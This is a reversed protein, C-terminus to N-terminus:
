PPSPTRSIASSPSGGLSPADADADDFAAGEIAGLDMDTGGGFDEDTGADTGDGADADGQRMQLFGRGFFDREVYQAANLEDHLAGAAGVFLTSALLYTLGTVVVVMLLIGLILGILSALTGTVDFSSAILGNACSLRVAGYLGLHTSSVTVFSANTKSEDESIGDSRRLYANHQFPETFNAGYKKTPWMTFVSFRCSDGSIGEAYATTLLDRGGGSRTAQVAKKEDELERIAAPHMELGISYCGQPIVSGGSADVGEQQALVDGGSSMASVLQNAAGLVTINVAVLRASDTMNSGQIGSLYVYDYMEALSILKREAGTASYVTPCWEFKSFNGELSNGQESSCRVAVKLQNGGFPSSRADSIRSTLDHDVIGDAVETSITREFGCVQDSTSVAIMHERWKEYLDLILNSVAGDRPALRSRSTGRAVQGSIARTMTFNFFRQVQRIVDMDPMTEISDDGSGKFTSIQLTYEQPTRELSKDVIRLLNYLTDEGDVCELRAYNAALLIYNRVNATTPQEKTVISLTSSVFAPILKLCTDQREPDGSMSVVGSKTSPAADHRMANSIFFGRQNVSGDDGLSYDRNMSSEHEATSPTSNTSTTLLEAENDLVNLVTKGNAALLRAQLKYRGARYTRFLALPAGTCGDICFEDVTPDDQDILYFQYLFAADSDVNARAAARFVTNVTGRPGIIAPFIIRPQEVTNISLTIAAERQEGNEQYWFVVKFVYGQHPSLAGAKIGLPQAQFDGSFGNEAYYGPETLLSNTTFFVNKEQSPALLTFRWTTGQAYRSNIVPMVILEEWYKVKKPHVENGRANTFDIRDHLCGTQTSSSQRVPPRLKSKGASSRVASVASLQQLALESRQTVEVVQHAASHRSDKSINLDYRIYMISDPGNPSTAAEDLLDASSVVFGVDHFSVRPMLGSSCPIHDLFDSNWAQTCNWAFSLGQKREGVSADPDYSNFGTVELNSEGNTTISLEGNGVVVELASQQILAFSRASGQISSNDTENYLPVYIEETSKREAAIFVWLYLRHYGVSLTERPVIFERGIRFIGTEGQSTSNEDSPQMQYKSYITSYSSSAASLAPQGEVEWGWEYTLSATDNPLCSPMEVKAVIRLNTEPTSRTRPVSEVITVGIKYDRSRSLRASATGSTFNNRSQVVATYVVGYQPLTEVAMTLQKNTREIITANSLSLLDTGHPDLLTWSYELNDIFTGVEDAMITINSCRGFEYVDSGDVQSGGFIRTRVTIVLPIYSIQVTNSVDNGTTVSVGYSWSEGVDSRPPSTFSLQAENVSLLLNGNIEANSFLVKHEPNSLNYGDLNGLLVVTEGGKESLVSPVVETLALVASDYSFRFGSQDMFILRYAVPLGTEADVTGDERTAKIAWPLRKGTGPTTTFVASEYFGSAGSFQQYSGNRLQFPLEAGAVSFSEINANDANIMEVYLDEGGDASFETSPTVLKVIAPPNGGITAKVYNTYQQDEFETGETFRDWEFLVDLNGARYEEFDYGFHLGGSAIENGVGLALGMGCGDPMSLDTGDWTAATLKCADPDWDIQGRRRMFVPVINDLGFFSSPSAAGYSSLPSDSTSGNLFQIVAGLEYHTNGNLNEKYDSILFSRDTGSVLVRGVVPDERYIGIGAALYEVALTDFLTGNQRRFEITFNTKGPFHHFDLTSTINVARGPLATTMVEVDSVNSLVDGDSSLRVVDYDSIDVGDEPNFTFSFSDDASGNVLLVSRSSDEYFNVGRRDSSDISAQRMRTWDALANGTSRARPILQVGREVSISGWARESVFCGTV